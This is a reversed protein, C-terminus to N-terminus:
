VFSCIQHVGEGDIDDMGGGCQHLDPYGNETAFPTSGRENDCADAAVKAAKWANLCPRAKWDRCRVFAPSSDTMRTHQPQGFHQVRHKPKAEDFATKIDLPVNNTKGGYWAADRFEKRGAM